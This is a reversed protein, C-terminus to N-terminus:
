LTNGALYGTSFAIQLNFGGTLADVDMVEGAFHLGSVLKSEMNKPNIEKTNVGGSTVVAMNIDGLKTPYLTFNKITHVLRMREEKTISNVKKYPDVKAKKIVHEIMSHPMLDVLANLLIKNNYKKFDSIIRTDLTEMDLAPKMDIVLKINKLNERNIHASTSLVLPGSVGTHTFLMEGLNSYLLREGRYASLTVNRLTLGSLSAIDEYNVDIGVLSPVIDVISHGAHRAFTYGDGTSGTARYSVGGTAVIVKDADIRSGDSLIVGGVRNDRIIIDKVDTNLRIDVGCSHAFNALAKIIDSSHDSVPFVRNGREVKLPTGYSEIVNMMDEPTFSYLASMLFKDGRIVNSLFERPDVANTVNCRGKGTIYIKKGVKENKEILITDNGSMASYGSAILGAAGGGVVIVRMDVELININNYYMINTNIDIIM